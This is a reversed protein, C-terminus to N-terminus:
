RLQRFQKVCNSSNSLAAAQNIASTRLRVHSSCCNDAIILLKKVEEIVDIVWRDRWRDSDLCRTALSNDAKTISTISSNVFFYLLPSREKSPLSCTRYSRPSTESCLIQKCRLRPSSGLSTTRRIASFGVRSVCADQRANPVFTQM